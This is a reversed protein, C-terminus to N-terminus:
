ADGKPQMQKLSRIMGVVATELDALLQVFVGTSRRLDGTLGAVVQMQNAVASLTQALDEHTM